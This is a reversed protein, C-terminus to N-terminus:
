SNELGLMRIMKVLEHTLQACQSRRVKWYKSTSTMYVFWRALLTMGSMIADPM